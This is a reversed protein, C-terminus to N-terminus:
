RVKLMSRDRLSQPSDDQAPEDDWIIKKQRKKGDASNAPPKQAPADDWTITPGSSQRSDAILNQPEELRTPLTSYASVLVAVFLCGSSFAWLRQWGNM